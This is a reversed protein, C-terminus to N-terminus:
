FEVRISGGYTRPVGLLYGVLKPGETADFGFTKYVENTINRVWGAIEINGSAPRYALRINHLALARQGITDDPLFPDGDLNPGGLGESPDFFIDDTWSLDYRPTVTGWRGFDLPWDATLSVKFRPTNPLRNGTFDLVVPIAMPPIPPDSDVLATSRISLTTFDLYETELWGFRTTIQLGSAADPIFELPELPRITLDLEAGYIRADAANLVVRQPPANAGDQTVFEQKDQYDYLFAAGHVNIAADFFSAAFGVEHADVEEPDAQTIAPGQAGAPNMQRGKWGRSYRYYVNTEDDLRYTLSVTGSPAYDIQRVLCDSAACISSNGRIVETDLRTRQWNFRGGGQLTFDDFIDMSVGAFLGFDTTDQVFDRTLPQVASVSVDIQRFNLQQTLFFGGFEWALPTETLEGEFVLDQTVQWASDDVDQEFITQPTYDADIRRNRDYWEMATISRMSASGLAGLEGLESALQVFGGLSTQRERTDRNFDGEFPKRDLPRRALNKAVIQDAQRRLEPTLPGGGNEARLKERVKSREATIEPPDYNSGDLPGGLFNADAGIAQGVIGPQDIRSGHFNVLIELDSDPPLLRMQARGAWRELGWLDDDLGPPVDNFLGSSPDRELAYPIRDYRDLVLQPYESRDFEVSNPQTPPLGELRWETRSRSEDCIPRQNKRSPDRIREVGRPPAGGCRNGM